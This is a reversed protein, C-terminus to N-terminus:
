GSAEKKQVYDERIWNRIRKHLEDSCGFFVFHCKFTPDQPGAPISAVCRALVGDGTDGFLPSFFRMFIRPKFPTPHRITVGFESLEELTVNKCVQATLECPVFPSTEPLVTRSLQPVAVGLKDTLLKRDLPKYIFDTIGRHKFNAPIVRSGEDALIFIRPLPESPLIVQARTLASHLGDLWSAADTQILGGDILLADFRYQDPTVGKAVMRNLDIWAEREVQKVDLRLTPTDEPGIAAVYRRKVEAYVFGGSNDVFRIGTVGQGGTGTYSLFENFDEHDSKPISSLWDFPRAKWDATGRGLFHEFPKMSPEFSLLEHDTARVVLTTRGGPIGGVVGVSGLDDDEFVGSAEAQGSLKALGALFRTYSPFLTVATRDFNEEVTGQALALVERNLDIVGLRYRPPLKNKVTTPPKRQSSALKARGPMQRGRVFKRLETLQTGTLGFLAFRVLWMGEFQPHRVSAYCRGIIRSSVVNGGFIRSHIQAFVGEAIPAPNRISIAFDSIEDIVADKGIEVDGEARARFIFTPSIDAKDALLLEVKQLFLQQDLPKIVMDDVAEHRFREPRLHPDDYGLLLTKFPTEEIIHGLAKLRERTEVLWDLPKTRVSDLDLIFLRIPTIEAEVEIKQANTTSDDENVLGGDADGILLDKHKIPRSYKEDFAKVNPFIELYPHNAFLRFWGRLQQAARTDSSILVCKQM